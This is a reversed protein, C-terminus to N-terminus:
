GGRAGVRGGTAARSTRDGRRGARVHTPRTLGSRRRAHPLAPNIVVGRVAAAAALAHALPRGLDVLALARGRTVRRAVLARRHHGGLPAPRAPRAAPSGTPSSRTAGPSCSSWRLSNSSRRRSTAPQAPARLTRSSTPHARVWGVRLGGWFSKSASGVTLLHSTASGDGALPEPAPGDLAIDTLTEDGIVTVRHRLAIRRVEAREESTLSYGTPNHFDPVLYALRPTAERVTSEFLAVDFGPGDGAPGCGRPVRRSAGGRSWRRSATRTPPSQVVVRDRTGLVSQAITSIAHQAGTTVLIQDPHDPHRARHAAARDGRASAPTRAARLRTRVPLRAPVRASARLGRPAAAPPLLRRAWTWSTTLLSSAWPSM